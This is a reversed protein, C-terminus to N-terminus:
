DRLGLAPLPRPPRGAAAGAGARVFRDRDWGLLGPRAFDDNHVVVAAPLAAAIRTALTTKGSAGSGDIGVWRTGTRGALAAVVAAVPDIGSKSSRVAVEGRRRADAKSADGYSAPRRRLRVDRPLVDHACGDLDGDGSGGALDAVAQQEPDGAPRQESGVGRDLQPQQLDGRRQLRELTDHHLEVVARERQQGPHLDAVVRVGDEVARVDGQQDPARGRDLPMSRPSRSSALPAM